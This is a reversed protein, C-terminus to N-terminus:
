ATPPIQPMRSEYKTENETPVKVRYLAKALCPSAPSMRKITAGLIRKIEVEIRARTPTQLPINGAKRAALRSGISARLYSYDPVNRQVSCIIFQGSASPPKASRITNRASPPELVSSCVM